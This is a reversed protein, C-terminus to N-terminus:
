NGVKPYRYERVPCVPGKIIQNWHKGHHIQNVSGKLAEGVCSQGWQRKLVHSKNILGQERSESINGIEEWREKGM